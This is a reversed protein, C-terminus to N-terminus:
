TCHGIFSSLIAAWFDRRYIFLRTLNLRFLFDVPNGGTEEIWELDLISRNNIKQPSSKKALFGQKILDSGLQIIVTSNPSLKKESQFELITIVTALQARCIPEFSLM